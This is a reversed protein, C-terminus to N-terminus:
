REIESVDIASVDDDPQVQRFRAAAETDVVLAQLVRFLETDYLNNLSDPRTATAVYGRGSHVAYVQIQNVLRDQPTRWTFKRLLGDSLGGLAFCELPGSQRYERCESKLLVGQEKAYGHSDMGPPLPESSFIVNEHHIPDLFTYSEKFEWGNPLEASITSVSRLRPFGASAM